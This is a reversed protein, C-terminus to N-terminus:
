LNSTLTNSGVLDKKVSELRMIKSNFPKYTTNSYDPYHISDVSNEKNPLPHLLQKPSSNDKYYLGSTLDVTEEISEQYDNENYSMNQMEDEPCECNNDVWNDEKTKDSGFYQDLNKYLDDAGSEIIDVSKDLKFMDHFYFINYEYMFYIIIVIWILILFKNYKPLFKSIILSLFITSLFVIINRLIKNQKETDEQIQKILKDKTNISNEISKIKQLEMVVKENNMDNLNSLNKYIVEDINEIM